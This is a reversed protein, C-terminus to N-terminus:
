QYCEVYVYLIVKTQQDVGASAEILVHVVNAHGEQSSKHLATWGDQAYQLMNCTTVSVM